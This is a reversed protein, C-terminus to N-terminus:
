RRLRNSLPQQLPAAPVFRCEVVKGSQNVFIKVPERLVVQSPFPRIMRQLSGSENVLSIQLEVFQLVDVPLIPRLEDRHDSLYHPVDQDVM